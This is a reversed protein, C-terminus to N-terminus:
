ESTRAPQPPTPVLRLEAVRYRERTLTRDRVLVFVDYRRPEGPVVYWTAFPADRLTVLAGEPDLAHAGPIWGAEALDRAADLADVEREYWDREMPYM